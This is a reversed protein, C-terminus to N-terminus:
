TYATHIISNFRLGCSARMYSAFSKLTKIMAPEVGVRKKTPKHLVSSITYQNSRFYGVDYKNGDLKDVEKIYEVDLM